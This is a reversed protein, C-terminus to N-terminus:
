GVRGDKVKREISATKEEHAGGGLRIKLPIIHKADFL